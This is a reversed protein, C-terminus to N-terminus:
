SKKNERKGLPRPVTIDHVWMAAKYFKFMALIQMVPHGILNHVYWVNKAWRLRRGELAGPRLQMLLEIANLESAKYTHNTKTIVTVILEDELRTLDLSSIQERNVVSNDLKLFDDVYPKM